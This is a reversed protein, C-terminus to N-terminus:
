SGPYRGRSVEAELKRVAAQLLEQSRRQSAQRGQETARQLLEEESLGVSARLTEWFLRAELKDEMDHYVALAAELARDRGRDTQIDEQLCGGPWGGQGPRPRSCLRRSRRRAMPGSLSM